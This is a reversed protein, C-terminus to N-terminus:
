AARRGARTDRSVKGAAALAQWRGTAGSRFLAEVIRLTRQADELPWSAVTEGQLLRSFRETQLAYQNVPEFTWERTPVNGYSGRDGLMVRCATPRGHAFPFDCRLWGQSGLVSFQQHSAWASPGSQSAVTLSAHADGYDLIATSLRDVGFRPDRELAAIVRRPLRPFVLSCASIAYSGLDYLAGGGKTPDNRIDAPDHFQKAMTCQVAHPVGIAGSRLVDAICEWQPHNRYSFAEEIHRGTRERTEILTAAEAATLCLPKECLVHKGAELARISWEVHLHNPLPVYVADVEPDALLAAYSGHARPVGFERAVAQAKALERSAIAVVRASRVERAAPLFRGTAIAATGLVGWRVPM